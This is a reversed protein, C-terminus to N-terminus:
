RFASQSIKSSEDHRLYFSHTYLHFGRHRPLDQGHQDFGTGPDLFVIFQDHDFCQLHLVGHIRGAAARDLAIGARDRGVDIEGADVATGVNRFKVGDGAAGATQGGYMNTHETGTGYGHATSGGYVNSHETGEGAVHESSGGWRDM